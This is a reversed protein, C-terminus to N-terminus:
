GLGTIVVTAIPVREPGRWVFWLETVSNQMCEVYLWQM